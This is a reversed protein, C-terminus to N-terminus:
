LDGGKWVARGKIELMHLDEKNIIEDPYTTKDPNDSAIRLSGNINKFIRKIRLENNAFFAYVKGSTIDDFSQARIDILVADCHNISPMMSEGDAYIIATDGRTLSIGKKRFFSTRFVLSNESTEDCDNIYGTGCSARIDFVPVVIYEDLALEFSEAKTTELNQELDTKELFGFPLSLKSEILRAKAESVGRAGKQSPEMLMQSLYSKDIEVAKALLEQTEFQKELLLKTILKRLNRRRVEKINM